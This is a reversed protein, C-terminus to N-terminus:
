RVVRLEGHVDVSIERAGSPIANTSPHGGPWRVLIATPTEPTAMVQLAADQSWYGSGAHIERAPGLRNEFALRLTAGVGSPNGPPGVLRVLLGPRASQNHFLKTPGANQTVVLDIRGDHDYDALACGRQEGYIKIGSKQGPVPEFGGKGDGRLWLGRGGDYPSTAPQTAFFNQALFIDEKGDGDMDGVCIGFAPAMQAEVPLPCAEFHDGRNLLVMSELTNAQVVRASQAADGLIESVGAESYAKHTSFRARIFPLSAAMSAFGREPVIKKLDADYYAEIM